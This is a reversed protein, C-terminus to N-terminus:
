QETARQLPPHEVGCGDTGDVAPTWRPTGDDRRLVLMESGKHIAKALIAANEDESVRTGIIEVKDDAFFWFNQGGIYMAPAVHVSVIGDATRLDFHVGVSGDPAPYSVVAKITGSFLKEAARDYRTAAGAPLLVSSAVVMASIFTLRM